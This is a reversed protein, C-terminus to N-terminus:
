SSSPLKLLSLLSGSVQPAAGARPEADLMVRLRNLPRMTPQV